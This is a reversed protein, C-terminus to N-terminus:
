FFSFRAPKTLAIQASLHRSNLSPSTDQVVAWSAVRAEPFAPWLAGGDTFFTVVESECQMPKSVNQVTPMKRRLRCLDVDPSIRPFPM